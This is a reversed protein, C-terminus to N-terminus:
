AWKITCGVPTTEPVAVPKGALVAEVANRFDHSTVGSPDEYNDDVRGHYRLIGDGDFLFIEPTREAGYARAISQDENHIPQHGGALDIISLRRCGLGVGSDLFIGQDDPGRHAIACCMAEILSQDPSENAHPNAIGCIGCM